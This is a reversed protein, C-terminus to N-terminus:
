ASELMILHCRGRFGTHFTYGLLCVNGRYAKGKTTVGYSEGEAAVKNGEAIMGKISYVLGNPM